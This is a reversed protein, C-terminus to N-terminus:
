HDDVAQRSLREENGSGIGYRGSVHCREEQLVHYPIVARRFGQHAISIRYERGVEPPPHFGPSGSKPM